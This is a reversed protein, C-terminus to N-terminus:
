GGLTATLQQQNIDPTQCNRVRVWEPESSTRIEEALLPSLEVALQAVDVVDPDYTGTLENSPGYVVGLKVDSEAAQGTGASSATYLPNPNSSGDIFDWQTTGDMVRMKDVSVAMIEGNNVFPGSAILLGRTRIVPNNGATITGTVTLTPYSSQTTDYLLPLDIDGTITVQVSGRAWFGKGSGSINGIINLVGGNFLDSIFGQTTSTINGTWNMTGGSMRFISGVSNTKETDGNGTVNVVSGAPTNFAEGCIDPSVINITAGAAPSILGDGATRNDAVIESTCTLTVGDDITISGGSSAPALADSRLSAITLDSPLTMDYGNPRFTDGVALATGGDLNAPDLMSGSAVAYRNAM